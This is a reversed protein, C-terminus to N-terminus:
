EATVEFEYGGNRLFFYLIDVMGDTVDTTGIKGCVASHEVVGHKTGTLNSYGRYEVWQGANMLAKTYCKVVTPSVITDNTGGIIMLPSDTNRIKKATVNALTTSIPESVGRTWPDCGICKNADFNGSTIGYVATVSSLRLSMQIHQMSVAPADLAVARLPIGGFDVVNEAIMGGQSEGFFFCGDADVWKYKDTIYKYAKITEETAYWSGVPAAGSSVGKSTMFEQSYGTVCLVAYGLSNLIKGHNMYSYWNKASMGGGPFSIVLKNKSNGGPAVFYCHHDYTTYVKHATVDSSLQDDPIPKEYMVEVDFEDIVSDHVIQGIGDIDEKLSTAGNFVSEYNSKPAILEGGSYLNKTEM